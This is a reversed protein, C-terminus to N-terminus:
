EFKILSNLIDAPLNYPEEQLARLVFDKQTEQHGIPVIQTTFFSQLEDPCLKAADLYYKALNSALINNRVDGSNHLTVSQGQKLKSSFVPLLRDPNELHGYPNPIVVKIIPLGYHSCWFLTLDWVMKKAVGYPSLGYASYQGNPEFASGSHIFLNCGNDKLTSIVKQINQLNTQLHKLVDFELSRYNDIFAAHNIFVHCKEREILEIFKPSNLDVNEELKLAPKKVNKALQIRERKIPSYENMFGKLPCVTQFGDDQLDLAIYAGTFSTLGTLLVKKTWM